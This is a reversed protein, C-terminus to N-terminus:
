PHCFFCAGRLRPAARDAAPHGTQVIRHAPDTREAAPGLGVALDDLSGPDLWALSDQVDAAPGARLRQGGGFDCPGAVDGANIRRGVHKLSRPLLRRLLPELNVKPASRDLL